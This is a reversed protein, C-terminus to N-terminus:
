IKFNRIGQERWASLAVTEFLEASFKYHEEKAIHGWHKKYWVDFEKKEKNLRAHALKHLDEDSM